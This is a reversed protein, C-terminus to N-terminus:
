PEQTRREVGGAAHWLIFVRRGPGRNALPQQPDPETQVTGSELPRGLEVGDQTRRQGDSKGEEAVGEEQGDQHGDQGVSKGLDHVVGRDLDLETAGHEGKLADLAVGDKGVRRWEVHDGENKHERHTEEEAGAGEVGDINRDDLHHIRRNEEEDPQVLATADPGAAHRGERWPLPVM